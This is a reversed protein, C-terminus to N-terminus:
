HVKEVASSETRRYRFQWRYDSIAANTYTLSVSVNRPIAADNRLGRADSM